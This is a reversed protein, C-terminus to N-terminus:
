PPSVPIPDFDFQTNFISLAQAAVNEWSFVLARKRAATRMEALLVDNDLLREVAAAMEDADGKRCLASCSNDL